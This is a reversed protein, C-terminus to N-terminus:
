YMGEDDDWKYNDASGALIEYIWTLLGVPSDALFFAMSQPRRSHAVVHPVQNLITVIDPVSATDVGPPAGSRYPANTNNLNSVDLFSPVVSM